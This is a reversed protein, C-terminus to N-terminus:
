VRLIEIGNEAKVAAGTLLTAWSLERNIADFLSGWFQTFMVTEAGVGLKSRLQRCHM